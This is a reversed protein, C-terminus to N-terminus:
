YQDEGGAIWKALWWLALTGLLGALGDSFYHWGLQVSAVWM